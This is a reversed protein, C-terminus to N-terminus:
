LLNRLSEPLAYFDDFSYWDTNQDEDDLDEDSGEDWDNLISFSDKPDCLAIYLSQEPTEEVNIAKIKTNGNLGAIAGDLNYFADRMNGGTIIAYRGDPISHEKGWDVLYLGSLRPQCTTKQLEMITIYNLKM